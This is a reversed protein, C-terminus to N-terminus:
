PFSGTTPWPVFSPLVPAFEGGFVVLVNSRKTDGTGFSIAGPNILWRRHGVVANNDGDDRMYGVIARAGSSGFALNAHAAADAGDATYCPWTSPPFHSINGEAEMILAAAQATRNAAPDLTVPTLGALGRVYNIATLTAGQYATGTTGPVCGAASGTWDNRVALAPLLTSQYTAIVSERSNGAADAPAVAAAPSGGWALATGVLATLVIGSSLSRVRVRGGGSAM